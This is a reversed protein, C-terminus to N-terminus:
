VNLPSLFSTDVLVAHHGTCDCVINAPLSGFHAEAAARIQISNRWATRSLGLDGPASPLPLPVSRTERAWSHWVSESPANPLLQCLQRLIEQALHFVSSAPPPSWTAAAPGPGPGEAGNREAM